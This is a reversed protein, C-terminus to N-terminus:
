ALWIVVMIGYISKWYNWIYLKNYSKFCPKIKPLYNLGFRLFNIVPPM